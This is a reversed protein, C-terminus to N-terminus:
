PITHLQEIRMAGMHNYALFLVPLEEFLGLIDMATHQRYTERSGSRGGPFRGM